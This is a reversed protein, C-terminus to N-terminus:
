FAIMTIEFETPKRETGNNFDIPASHHLSVVAWCNSFMKLLVLDVHTRILHPVLGAIKLIRTSGEEIGTSPWDSSLLCRYGRFPSLRTCNDAFKTSILPQLILRADRPLVHSATSNLETSGSLNHKRKVIKKSTDLETEAAQVRM